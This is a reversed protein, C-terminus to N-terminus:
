IVVEWAMLISGNISSKLPYGLILISDNISSKLPYWLIICLGWPPCTIHDVM